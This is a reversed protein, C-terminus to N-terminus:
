SSLPLYCSKNMYKKEAKLVLTLITILRCMLMKVTNRPVQTAKIQLTIVQSILLQKISEYTQRTQSTNILTM